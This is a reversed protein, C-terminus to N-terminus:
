LSFEMVSSQGKSNVMGWRHGQRQTKRRRTRMVIFTHCLSFRSNGEVARALLQVKDVRQVVPGLVDAEDAGILM